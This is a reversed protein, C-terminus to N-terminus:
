QPGERSRRAGILRLCQRDLTRVSGRGLGLARAVERQSQGQEYRLAYFRQLAPPLRSARSRLLFTLAPDAPTSRDRRPQGDLAVEARRRARRVIDIAKHTAIQFLWGVSVRSNSGSKWLALRTEQLLDPVDQRPLGHRYAIRATLRELYPSELWDGVSLVTSSQADAACRNENWPGDTCSGASRV